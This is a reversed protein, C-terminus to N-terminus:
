DGLLYRKSKVIPGPRRYTTNREVADKPIRLERLDAADFALLAIVFAASRM